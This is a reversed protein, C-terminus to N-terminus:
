FARLFDLRKYRAGQRSCLSLNERGTAKLIKTGGNWTAVEQEKHARPWGLGSNKRFSVNKGPYTRTLFVELYEVKTPM